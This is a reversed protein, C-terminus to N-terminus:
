IDASERRAREEQLEALTVPEKMGRRAILWGALAGGFHCSHAVHLGGAPLWPGAVALIGSALLFGLGVNKASLPLLIMRSKPSVTTLWLVLAFIGGSAGVLVM